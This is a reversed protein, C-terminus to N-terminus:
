SAEPTTSPVNETLEIGAVTRNSEPADCEKMVSCNMAFCLIGILEIFVYKNILERFPSVFDVYIHGHTLRLILSYIKL